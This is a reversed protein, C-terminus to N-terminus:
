EMRGAKSWTCSGEMFRKVLIFLKETERSNIVKSSSTRRCREKGRREVVGM